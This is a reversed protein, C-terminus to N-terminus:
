RVCVFASDIENKVRGRFCNSVLDEAMILFTRDDKLDTSSQFRNLEAALDEKLQEATRQDHVTEDLWKKLRDQGFFEGQQNQAETVGDTYLLLRFRDGLQVAVESFSADPSIGIPLGQPAVTQVANATALFLPCHGAGAAILQRAGIDLYVLQATVFMDVRSLEDFLMRNVRALLASPKHTWGQESRLLSRLMTSFMAAPVGKGMVDAIFLLLSDDSFCLLDFFDGSVHRASESYGAVSCGRLKPLSKPLLARQIDKAIELERAVLRTNLHEEQLRANIMGIALFDAFTRVVEVQSATFLPQPADKGVTLVGVLTQDAFLPHALGVSGPKATNLPDTVALPQSPSFWVDQRIVAAKSEVPAEAPLSDGIALPPLRLSPESAAFVVLRSGSEPVLRLVCWDASTIELLDTLLSRAFASVDNTRGLEASHRFIASLSEHCFSLERAMNKLSQEREALRQRAEELTAPAPLSSRHRTSFRSKRMVLCNECGDRLYRASHMLSQIVFLGRGHEAEQSPLDIKEPWAFGATHDHVCLIVMSLDCLVNVEIPETRRSTEVYLVANNCAEVLALECAILEEEPLGHDALFERVSLAAPHVEALDCGLTLRLAAPHCIQMPAKAM